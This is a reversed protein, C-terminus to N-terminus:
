RRHSVATSFLANPADLKIELTREDVVQMSVISKAYGIATSKSEPNQIREWYAKVAAADYPSGDSFKLGPRLQLTWTTATADPEFKEALIPQPEKTKPDLVVLAGYLSFITQGSSGATVNQIMPDLTRAEAWYLVTAEGGQVPKLDAVSTPSGSTSDASTDVTRDLVGRSLEGPEDICRGSPQHVIAEFGQSRRKWRM